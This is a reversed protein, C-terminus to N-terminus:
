IHVERTAWSTFFGGAIYSVRTRNGLQSSVRSFPYAIWELIRPSGQHESLLSDARLTPSRPHSSDKSSPMVVWELIRAQLIGMAPQLGHPRLSDSMVSCVACAQIYPMQTQLCYEILFWHVSTKQCHSYLVFKWSHLHFLWIDAWLIWNHM